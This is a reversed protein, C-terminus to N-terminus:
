AAGTANDARPIRRPGRYTCSQGLSDRRVTVRTLGPFRRALRDWIWLCLHELSPSYLGEIDNLLAHDLTRRLTNCARELQAFDAVFGEPPQPTGRVAVEARFSHGHVGRYKHGRPKGAFRHAADFGFAYCIEVEPAPGRRTTKKKM